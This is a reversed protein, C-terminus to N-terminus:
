ATSEGEAKRGLNEQIVMTLNQPEDTGIRHKKRGIMVLEVAEMGSVNWLWGSPTRHIGWGYWWRNRVPKCSIIDGLRFRKRILGPGFRIRIFEADVTVTLSAFLILCVVIVGIVPVHVWNRYKLALCSMFVIIPTITALIVWGVQTHRYERTM